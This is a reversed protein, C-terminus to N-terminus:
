GAPNNVAVTALLAEAEDILSSPFELESRVIALQELDMPEQIREQAFVRAGDDREYSPVYHDHYHPVGYGSTLRIVREPSLVETLHRSVLNGLAIAQFQRRLPLDVWEPVPEEPIVLVHGRSAPHGDLTVFFGHERSKFIDDSPADGDWM